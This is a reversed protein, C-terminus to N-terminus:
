CALLLVLYLLQPAFDWFYTIYMCCDHMFHVFNLYIPLYSICISLIKSETYDNYWPFFLICNNCPHKILVQCMVPLTTILLVPQCTLILQLLLLNQSILIIHSLWSATVSLERMHLGSGPFSSLLFIFMYVWCEIVLYDPHSFYSWVLGVLWTADMHYYRIGNNKIHLAMTLTMLFGSLVFINNVCTSTHYKLEWCHCAASLM